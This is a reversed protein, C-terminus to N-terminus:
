LQHSFVSTCHTSYVKKLLEEREKLKAKEKAEREERERKERAERELREKEM